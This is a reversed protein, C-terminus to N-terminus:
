CVTPPFYAKKEHGIARFKVKISLMSSSHRVLLFSITRVEPWYQTKANVCYIVLILINFSCSSSCTSSINKIYETIFRSDEAEYFNFEDTWWNIEIILKLLNDAMGTTACLM